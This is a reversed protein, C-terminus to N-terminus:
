DERSKKQRKEKEVRGYYLTQALRLRNDLFTPANAEKLLKSLIDPDSQTLFREKSIMGGETSEPDTEPIQLLSRYDMRTNGPAEREGQEINALQADNLTKTGM